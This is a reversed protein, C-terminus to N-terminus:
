IRALVIRASFSALFITIVQGTQKLLHHPYHSSDRFESIPRLCSRKGERSIGGSVGIKGIQIRSKKKQSLALYTKQMSITKTRWIASEKCPSSSMCLFYVLAVVLHDQSHSSKKTDGKRNKNRFKKKDRFSIQASLPFCRTMRSQLIAGCEVKNKEGLKEAKTFKKVTNPMM